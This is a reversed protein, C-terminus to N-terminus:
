SSYENDLEKAIEKLQFLHERIFYAFIYATKDNIRPEKKAILRDFYLKLEAIPYEL